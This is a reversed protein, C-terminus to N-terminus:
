YRISGVCKWLVVQIPALKKGLLLYGLGIQWFMMCQQLLPLAVGATILCKDKFLMIVAWPHAAFPKHTKCSITGLGGSFLKCIIYTSM